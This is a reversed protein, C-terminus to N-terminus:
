STTDCGKVRLTSPAIDLSPCWLVYRDICQGTDWGLTCLRSHLKQALESPMGLRSFYAQTSNERIDGGWPMEQGSPCLQKHTVGQTCDEGHVPCSEVARRHFNRNKLHLATAEVQM